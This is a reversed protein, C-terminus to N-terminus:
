SVSRPQCVYWSGRLEYEFAHGIHDEQQPEHSHPSNLLLLPAFTPCSPVHKCLSASIKEQGGKSAISGAGRVLCHSRGTNYPSNCRSPSCRRVAKSPVPMMAPPLAAPASEEPKEQMVIKELIQGPLTFPLLSQLFARVSAETSTSDDDRPEKQPRPVPDEYDSDDDSDDIISDRM